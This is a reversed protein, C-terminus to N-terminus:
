DVRPCLLHYLLKFLLHLLSKTAKSESILYALSLFFVNINLTTNKEGWPRFQVAHTIQVIELSIFLRSRGLFRAYDIPIINECAISM